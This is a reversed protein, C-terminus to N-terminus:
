RYLTKVTGWTAEDNPTTGQVRVIGTMDFSFHPRCFYPVDGASNFTYSVMTNGADLPDDFLTGVNPDAPGTGNTVTHSNNAWVWEVTDGVNITIDDPDFTFGVQNVQHTTAMATTAALAFVVGLTLTMFGRRM